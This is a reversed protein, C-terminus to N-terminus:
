EPLKELLEVTEKTTTEMKSVGDMGNRTTTRNGVVRVESQNLVVRGAAPDFQFTGSKSSVSMLGTIQFQGAEANWETTGETSVECKVTVRNGVKDPGALRYSRKGKSKSINPSEFEYPVQWSDSPKLASQSLLPLQRQLTDAAEQDTGAGVFTVGLLKGKVLDRLSDAYGKVEKVAGHPTVTAQYGLGSLRELVPTLAAAFPSEKNRESSQSDFSYPEGL